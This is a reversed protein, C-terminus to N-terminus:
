VTKKLYLHKWFAELTRTAYAHVSGKWPCTHMAQKSFARLWPSVRANKPLLGFTEGEDRMDVTEAVSPNYVVYIM